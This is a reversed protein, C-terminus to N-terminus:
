QKKVVSNNCAQSLLGYSVLFNQWNAQEQKQRGLQDSTTSILCKILCGLCSAKTTCENGGDRIPHWVPLQHSFYSVKKKGCQSSSCFVYIVLFILECVCSRRDDHYRSIKIFLELSPFIHIEGWGTGHLTPVAAQCSKLVFSFTRMHYITPGFVDRLLTVAM